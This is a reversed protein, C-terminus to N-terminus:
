RTFRAIMWAKFGRSSGICNSADCAAAEYSRRFDWFQGGFEADGPTLANCKHCRVMTPAASWGGERL